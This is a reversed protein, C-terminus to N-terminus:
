LHAVYALFHGVCVCSFFVHDEKSIKTGHDPLISRSFASRCGSRGLHKAIKNGSDSSFGCCCYLPAPLVVPRGLAFEAVDKSHFLQVHVSM